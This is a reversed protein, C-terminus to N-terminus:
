KAANELFTRIQSLGGDRSAEAVWDGIDTGDDRGPELDVVRAHPLVAKIEAALQRGQPDADALVVLRKFRRLRGAWEPRWSAVGPVGVARHGCSWVSVVDPEGEVVFLPYDASLFEPEGFLLRKSGPLALSKPSGGPVYRVVGVIRLRHDRVPFTVREGDWGLGCRWMAQPTWGKLEELRAVIRPAAFLANKWKRLQREGPLKPREVELFVGYRQALERAAEERYGLALAAQYANGQAGCGHCKFLGTLLNVSCSANRDERKHEGPSVFCRVEAEQGGKDPLTVGIAAYFEIVRTGTAARLWNTEQARLASM